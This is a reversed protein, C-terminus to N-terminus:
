KGKGLLYMCNLHSGTVAVKLYSVLVLDYLPPLREGLTHLFDFVPILYLWGGTSLESSPAGIDKFVFFASPWHKLGQRCELFGLQARDGPILFVDSLPYEKGGGQETM